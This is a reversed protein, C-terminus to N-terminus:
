KSDSNESILDEIKLKGVSPLQRLLAMVKHYRISQPFFILDLSNFVAIKKFTLIMFESDPFARSLLNSLHSSNLLFLKSTYQSQTMVHKHQKCGARRKKM